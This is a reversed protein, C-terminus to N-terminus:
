YRKLIINKLCGKKKKTQFIMNDKYYINLLKGYLDRASKYVIKKKRKKSESNSSYIRKIKKLRQKFLSLYNNYRSELSEKECKGFNKFERFNYKNDYFLNSEDTTLSEEGKNKVPQENEDHNFVKDFNQYQKEAVSTQKKM